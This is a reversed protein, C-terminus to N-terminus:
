FYFYYFLNCHPQNKFVFILGRRQDDTLRCGWISTRNLGVIPRAIASFPYRNVFILSPVCEKLTEVGKEKLICFLDIAKLNKLKGLL